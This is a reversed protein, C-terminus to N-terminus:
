PARVVRFGFSFNRADPGNYSAFRRSSASPLDNWYGGRLVRVTADPTIWASGDTPAGDYSTHSMDQCWERVNGYMDFLGFANPLKGGVPKSGHTPSGCGGSNNGCFWAYNSLSCTTCSNPECDTNGFFFPTSSGARCAYEWEAESPLRFTAPGQKTSKVHENLKEIFGNAGAIDTWSIGYAPYSDGAGNCEGPPNGPWKGMVAIWQRQTVEFKGMEFPKAFTVKHVPVEDTDSWGPADSGMMFEGSPITVLDLSVGGPLSITTVPVSTEAAGAVLHLCLVLLGLIQLRKTSKM